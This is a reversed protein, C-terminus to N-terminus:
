KHEIKKMLTTMTMVKEGFMAQSLREYEPLLQEVYRGYREMNTAGTILSYTFHDAPADSVVRTFSVVECGEERLFPIFKGTLIDLWANQVDPDVFFSTNVIYM